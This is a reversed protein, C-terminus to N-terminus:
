NLVFLCLSCCVQYFFFVKGIWLHVLTQSLVDVVETNRGPRADLLKHDMCKSTLVCTAYIGPVMIVNHPRMLLIVTLMMNNLMLYSISRALNLKVEEVNWPEDMVDYSYDETKAKPKNYAFKNSGETKPSIGCVRFIGIYSLIEFVFQAVVSGWFVNVIHVTDWTEIDTFPSDLTKTAIRYCLICIGSLTTFVTQIHM